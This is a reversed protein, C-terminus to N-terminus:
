PALRKVTWIDVGEEKFFAIRDHLRTSQGQWFEFASPVVLYGGWHPPVVVTSSQWCVGDGAQSMQQDSHLSGEALKHAKGEIRVQKHLPPWFFLLATHPNNEVAEGKESEYDAFVTLGKETYSKLHAM